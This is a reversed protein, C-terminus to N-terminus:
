YGVHLIKRMIIDFSFHGGAVRGDLKQLVISVQKLQLVEQFRNHQGFKYMVGEQLVFLKVKQALYQIQSTTFKKPMVGELLYEYV